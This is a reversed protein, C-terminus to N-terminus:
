SLESENLVFPNLTDGNGSIVEAGNKVTIVPRVGFEHVGYHFQMNFTFHMTMNLYAGTPVLFYDLSSNLFSKEQNGDDSSFTRTKFLDGMSLLGVPYKLKGNGNTNSVSFIDNSNSCSFDVNSIIEEWEEETPEDNIDDLNNYAFDMFKGFDGIMSMGFDFAKTYDYDKGILSTFYLDRSFCYPSDELMSTYSTLNNEYWGEIYSKLKSDTNNAFMKNKADEVNDGNSLIIYDPGEIDYTYIYNVDTCTGSTNLCTYHYKKAIDLYDLTWSDAIFTDKLTYVGNKYEVDNGYVYNEYNPAYFHTKYPNIIQVVNSCTISNLDDCVYYKNYNSYETLWNTRDITITEKLSFSGDSNEVYSKGLVLKSVDDYTKGDTLVVSYKVESDGAITYYLTTCSTKTSSECTYYGTLNSYNESWYKQEPNQLVYNGDEYVYSKSYYYYYYDGTGPYTPDIVDYDSSLTVSNGSYTDGYMYGISSLSMIKSYTEADFESNLFATNGIQSAEGSNNCSGDTAPVGNYILRVGGAETTKIGKWCFNAFKVNNNTESYNYYYNQYQKNESYNDAINNASLRVINFLNTEVYVVLNNNVSEVTLNNDKVVHPIYADDSKVGIKGNFTENFTVELSDGDFVYIPYGNNTIGEYTISHFVRFDFDLAIDYIGPTGFIKIYFTKKALSLCQGYEDCLQEKLNYDILEYSLSENLGSINLIGAPTTGYNTVEIKYIIFSDEYPLNINTIVRNKNFEEYSSISNLSSEYISFDTIRVDADVRAYADGTIKVTSSLASFAMTMFSFCLLIMIIIFLHKRSRGKKM